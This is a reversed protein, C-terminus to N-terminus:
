QGDPYTLECEETVKLYYGQGPVLTRIGDFNFEPVYFQGAANKAIILNGAISEFGVVPELIEDPYYAAINWNQRLPIPSDPAVGEGTIELECAQTVNVQYGETVRWDGISNFDEDPYYFRGEEDKMLLLLGAEVLPATVVEVAPNEPIIRTSVMNWGATFNLIQVPEPEDGGFTGDPRIRYLLLGLGRKYMPFILGGRSDVVMNHGNYYRYPDQGQDGEDSRPKLRVGADGWLRNGDADLKQAHMYTISDEEFPIKALATVFLNNEDAVIHTFSATNTRYLGVELPLIPEGGWLLEGDNDLLQCFIEKHGLTQDKWKVFFKDGQFTLTEHFRRNDAEETLLIGEGWQFEGELDFKNAWLLRDRQTTECCVFLENNNNVKPRFRFFDFDDGVGDWIQEYEETIRRVQGDSNFAYFGGDDCTEIRLGYNIDECLLVGGEEWLIEGDRTLLQGWLQGNGPNVNGDNWM